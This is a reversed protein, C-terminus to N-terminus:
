LTGQDPAGSSTQLLRFRSDCFYNSNFIIARLAFKKEVWKTLSSTKEVLQELGCLIGAVDCKLSTHCGSRWDRWMVGAGM